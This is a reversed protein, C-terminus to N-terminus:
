KAEKKLEKGGWGGGAWKVRTVGRPSCSPQTPPQRHCMCGKQLPEEGEWDQLTGVRGWVEQAALDTVVGTPEKDAAMTGTNQM